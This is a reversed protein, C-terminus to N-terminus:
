ALHSICIVGSSASVTLILLRIGKIGVNGLLLNEIAPHVYEFMRRGLDSKGSGEVTLAVAIVMKLINTDEDDIADAGPLGQQMLGQRHAAEMFRYLKQTYAIIKNIDLVPYMLGMEDEYVRCLRTAEEQSVSWIPDKDTHWEQRIQRSPPAGDPTPERTGTGAPGSGGEGDNQSTIGMTQLSSKAVGFNFDSSTPGRFTPQQGSQSVSKPRTTAPSMPAMPAGATVQPYSPRHFPSQLTPDIPTQQQMPMEAGLQARLNNMEHYLSNVQEQLSGIHASMDKYEQSDKFGNCCNPAYVCELNLNGCRQCPAQGNCKIKRRKCENCAISIYRNRKARQQPQHGGDEAKRKGPNNSDQFHQQDYDDQSIQSNALSAMHAIADLDTDNM